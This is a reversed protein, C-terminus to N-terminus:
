PTPIPLAHPPLLWGGYVMAPNAMQWYPPGDPPCWWCEGDPDRWGKEREWPRESVPVPEITPRAYRALVAGCLDAVDEACVNGILRATPEWGFVCERVATAISAIRETVEEPEPEGVGFYPCAPDGFRGCDDVNAPAIGCMPCERVQVPKGDGLNRWHFLGDGAPEPQTLTYRTLIEARNLSAVVEEIPMMVGDRLIAAGDGCVGESWQPIGEDTVGEPEPQALATRAAKVANHLAQVDEDPWRGGHEDYAKVLRQLEARYDTSM